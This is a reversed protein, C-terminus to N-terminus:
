VPGPFSAVSSELLHHYPASQSPYNQRDSILNSNHTSFPIEPHSSPPMSRPSESYPSISPLLGTLLLKPQQRPSAGAPYIARKGTDRDGLGEKEKDKALDRTVRKEKEQGGMKGLLSPSPGLSGLM